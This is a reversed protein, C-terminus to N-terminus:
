FKVVKEFYNQCSANIVGGILIISSSFNLWFMLLIFSGITQYSSVRQAFYEVYLQFGQALLLWGLSTFVAGIWVYRWKIKAQPVFYYILILLSFLGVLGILNKAGLLSTLWGLSTGFNNKLLKLLYQGFLMISLLLAFLLFALLLLIFSLIRSVIANQKSSSNYIQNFCRRLTAILGSASWITVLIGISLSSNSGNTLFSNIIPKIINSMDSPTIQIIYNLITKVGIKLHALLNGLILIIPPLSLLLYYSLIIANNNVDGQQYYKKFLKAWRLFSNLLKHKNM